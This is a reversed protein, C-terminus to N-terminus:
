GFAKFPVDEDYDKAASDCDQSAPAVAAAPLLAKVIKEYDALAAAKESHGYICPIIAGSEIHITLEYEKHVVYQIRSLPVLRRTVISATPGCAATSTAQLLRQQLIQIRSAM